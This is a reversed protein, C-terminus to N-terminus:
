YDVTRLFEQLLLFIKMMSLSVFFESKEADHKLTENNNYDMPGESNNHLMETSGTYLFEDGMTEISAIMNSLEIDGHDEKEIASIENDINAEKTVLKQEKLDKPNGQMPPPPGFKVEEAPKDGYKLNFQRIRKNM